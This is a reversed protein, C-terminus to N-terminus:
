LTFPTHYCSYALQQALMPNLTFIQSFWLVQLWKSTSGVLLLINGAAVYHPLKSFRPVSHTRTDQGKLAKQKTEFQIHGIAALAAAAFGQGNCFNRGNPMQNAVHVHVHMNYKSHPITAAPKVLQISLAGIGRHLSHQAARM